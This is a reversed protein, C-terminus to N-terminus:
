LEKGLAWALAQNFEDDYKWPKEVMYAVEAANHGTHAAWSALLAINSHEIYWPKSDEHILKSVM